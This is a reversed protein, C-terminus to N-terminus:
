ETHHTTTTIELPADSRVYVVCETGTSITHATAGDSGFYSGPELTRTTPTDSARHTPRGQIVVARTAGGNTRLTGKFGAPLRVLVGRLAGPRTEGWLYAVHPGDADSGGPAPTWVLNSRDVNIPREGGDFAQESPLVRYPGDDIEIYALNFGGSAATIHAEGAPQTWFSGPPLWMSAAGPDDNHILGRIVVGRYTVNHIHPPSSFGEDFRVLFGSPGGGSTRDGWLAGARPSADGRAPNLHGWDVGEILVVSSAAGREQAAGGPADGAGACGAATLVSALLALGDGRSRRRTITDM